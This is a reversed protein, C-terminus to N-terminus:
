YFMISADCGVDGWDNPVNTGRVGICLLSLLVEGRLCGAGSDMVWDPGEPGMLLCWLLGPSPVKCATASWDGEFSDFDCFVSFSPSVTAPPLLGLLFLSKICHLIRPQIRSGGLSWGLFVPAIRILDM